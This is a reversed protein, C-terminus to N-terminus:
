LLFTGNWTFENAHALKLVSRPWEMHAKQRANIKFGYPIIERKKAHVLKCCVPCNWTDKKAHALKVVSPPWEVHTNQHANLKCCFPAM